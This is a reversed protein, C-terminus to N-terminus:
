DRGKELGSFNPKDWLLRVAFVSNNSGYKECGRSDYPDEGISQMWEAVIVWTENENVDTIQFNGLRAGRNPVLIHETNRIVCLREPYVQAIFLPARHRFVNDNDAGRRTYVLFLGDSHTVWHQQTNYNGLNSGDDFCWPKPRGYNLGDNGSAVYGTTDNRITLYYRGHYCTISPETLGREDPITLTNGHEIYKLKRGDFSCRLVTVSYPVAAYLDNGAKESAEIGRFYIPLFIDGDPLDYRQVCGAGSDFFITDQGPMELTEFPTWRRNEPDYISYCSQRKRQTVHDNNRYIALHGTGLLKGSKEHWKPNFDCPCIEIENDVKRRGLSKEHPTPGQWTQGMNDSRMENLAYFVDDKSLLVKQMLVVIIPNEGPIAGSRAHVWCTKRDYGSCITDLKIRYNVSNM